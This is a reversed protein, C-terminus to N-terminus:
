GDISISVKKGINYGTSLKIDYRQIATADDIRVKGDGTVDAALTEETNLSDLGAAVRQVKAADRLNVKGDDNVDGLIVTYTVDTSTDTDSDTTTDTDSDTTTDTTTDTDSDTTIDTTTDTDPGSVVVWNTGDWKHSKGELKMGPEDQAPIQSGAEAGDSGNGFIVNGNKFKDPVDYYFTGDSSKNMKVGPWAANQEVSAPNTSDNYVYCYVNSWNTKSNDFLVRMDGAPIDTTTDTSTDTDTTVDTDSNPSDFDYIVAIGTDGVDGSIKDATVTWTNGTIEDKYTGPTTTGGGNSIEVHGSGSGKVVVAGGGRCVAANGNESVYYDPQGNMANHFHNVAAVEKSTFHTSGKAGITIDDKVHTSPRSFYLATIKNRSAAIAYARDIVNQSHDWSYGWDDNNSWTDHSEAWYLLKDNPLGMWEACYNGYGAPATGKKFEDRLTMGYPSDTVAIYQAYQKMLSIAQERQGDEPKYSLGPNNLIEGYYWLSSDSTVTPWFNDGESPLGIHKAADFRIGSVGAAKLEQIYNKVCEQVYSHETNLDPMGIKGHTVQWRDGDRSDGIDPHWFQSDKLDDQIHDHNGALHNAVVDAIIKVGYRSAEQCLSEYDAKTGMASSGIYFGKPQYFWWWSGTGDTAQPPSTQVSTFGAAAIEPLMDKIDNYKWCFCHLIVGDSINNCLGYSNASSTEQEVEFASVAGANALAVGSVTALSLLVSLSKKLKESAM